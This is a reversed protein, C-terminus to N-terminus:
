QRASLLEIAYYKMYTTVHDSTVTRSGLACHPYATQATSDVMTNAYDKLLLSFDDPDLVGDANADGCAIAPQSGYLLALRTYETSLMALETFMWSTTWGDVRDHSDLYAAIDYMTQYDDYEYNIVFTYRGVATEEFSAIDLEPFNEATLNDGSIHFEGYPYFGGNDQLIITRQIEYVSQAFDLRELLVSLMYFSSGTKATPTIRWCREADAPLNTEEASCQTITFMPEGDAHYKEALDSPPAEDEKAVIIWGDIQYKLHYFEDPTMATGYGWWVNTRDLNSFLVDEQTLIEEADFSQLAHVSLPVASTLLAGSLFVSCIRHKLKM